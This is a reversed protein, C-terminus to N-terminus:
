KMLLYKLEENQKSEIQVTFDNKQYKDFSSIEKLYKALDNTTTNLNNKYNGLNNNKSNCNISTNNFM